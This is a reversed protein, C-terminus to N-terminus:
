FQGLLRMVLVFGVALAAAVVVAGVFIWALELWSM